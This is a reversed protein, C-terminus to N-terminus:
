HGHPGGEDLFEETELGGGCVPCRGIAQLREGLVVAHESLADQAAGHEARAQELMDRLTRLSQVTEALGEPVAVDPPAGLADLSEAVMRLSKLQFLGASIRYSIDSLSMVDAVSPPAELKELASAAAQERALSEAVSQLERCLTQLPSIAEPQPPASLSELEKAYAHAYGLRHSLDALEQLAERLSRMDHTKPAERLPELVAKEAEALKIQGLLDRRARLTEELLPIERALEDLREGAQRAQEMGLELSPLPELADLEAEIDRLRAERGALERRKELVKRKLAGQMDLLYAGESSSALFDAVVRDGTNLLFVPERQDGIHVDITNNDDIRVKDMRLLERVEDPVGGRGLKWFEEPEEAGPRLIRYGPSAKKRVWTIEHGDDLVVTVRAEKEGHRIFHKPTPNEAVCRLAEVLASKGTNNPGTLATVGPGLEM